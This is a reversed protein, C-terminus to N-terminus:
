KSSEHLRKRASKKAAAGPRARTAEKVTLLGRERAAIRIAKLATKVSREVESAADRAAQAAVKAERVASVLIGEVAKALSDAAIRTQKAGSRAVRRAAKGTTRAVTVPQVKGARVVEKVANWAERAAAAADRAGGRKGVSQTRLSQTTGLRGGKSRGATRANKKAVM